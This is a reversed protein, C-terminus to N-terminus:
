MGKQSLEPHHFFLLLLFPLSPSKKEEELGAGWGSSGECPRGRAEEVGSVSVMMVKKIKCCSYLFLLLKVLLFYFVHVGAAPKGKLRKKVM